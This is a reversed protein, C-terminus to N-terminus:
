AEEFFSPFFYTEGVQGTAGQQNPPHYYGGDHLRGVRRIREILQNFQQEDQPLQGDLPTLVRDWSDPNLRLGRLLLWSMGQFTMGLGGRQVARHRLVDFRVLCADLTEDTTWSFSMMEALARTALESDLPMYKQTLVQALVMLGTMHNGLNDIQGHVQPPIERILDRASGTIQLAALPGQRQPEIETSSSWLVLDSLWSRVSYQHSTEVSWGPPTKLTAQGQYAFPRQSPGQFAQHM